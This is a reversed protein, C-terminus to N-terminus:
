PAVCFLVYIFPVIDLHTARRVLLDAVFQLRYSDVTPVFVSANIPLDEDHSFRALTRAWEVM